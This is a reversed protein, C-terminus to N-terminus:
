YLKAQEGGDFESRSEIHQKTARLKPLASRCKYQTYGFGGYIKKM